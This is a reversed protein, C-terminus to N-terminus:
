FEQLKIVNRSGGPNVSAMGLGLIEPLRRSSSPVDQETILQDPFPPLLLQNSM